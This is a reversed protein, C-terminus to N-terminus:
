VAGTGSDGNAAEVLLTLQERGVVTVTDGADAGAVCRAAWIEGAVRVQGLPRCPTVVVGQTGILTEAGTRVRRRKVTRNWFLLEGIGLVLCLTFGVLDWPSPLLLLLVFAVVFLM